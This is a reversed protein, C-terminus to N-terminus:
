AGATASASRPTAPTSRTSVQAGPPPASTTSHRPRDDLRARRALEEERPLVGDEVARGRQDGRDVAADDDARRETGARAIEDDVREGFALAEDHARGESGVERAAVHAGHEGGDLAGAEREALPGRLEDDVRTREEGALPLEPEAPAGGRQDRRHGGAEGGVAARVRRLDEAAGERGVCAELVPPSAAAVDRRRHVTAHDLHAPTRGPERGRRPTQRRPEVEDDAPGALGRRRRREECAEVRPACRRREGRERGDCVLRGGRGDRAVRVPEQFGDVARVVEERTEALVRAERDDGRRERAEDRGRAAGTRRRLRRPRARAVAAERERARGRLGLGDARGPALGADERERERDRRVAHPVRVDLAREPHGTGSDILSRLRECRSSQSPAGTSYAPLVVSRSSTSRTCSARGSSATSSTSTAISSSPLRSRAGSRMVPMVPPVSSAAATFWASARTASAFPIANPSPECRAMCRVGASAWVKATRACAGVVSTSAFMPMTCAAASAVASTSASARVIPASASQTWRFGACSSIWAP